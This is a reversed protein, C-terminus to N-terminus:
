RERKIELKVHEAQWLHRLQHMLIIEFCSFLNYSIHKSFPSIVVIKNLDLGDAERILDQLEKQLALFRPLICDLPGLDLPECKSAARFKVRPPPKLMWRLARGELDMKFPGQGTLGSRQAEASVNSIIPLFAESSLNLHVLCEAVSWRDSEARLSMEDSYFGDVLLRTLDSAHEYKEDLKVLQPHM